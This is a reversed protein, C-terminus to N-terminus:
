EYVAFIFIHDWCRYESLDVTEGVDGLYILDTTLEETYDKYEFYSESVNAIAWGKITGDVCGTATPLEIISQNSSYLSKTEVCNSMSSIQNTVESTTPLSYFYAYTSNSFQSATTIECKGVADGGLNIYYVIQGNIYSASLRASFSTDLSSSVYHAISSNVTANPGKLSTNIISCKYYDRLTPTTSSGPISARATTWGFKLTAYDIKWGKVMTIVTQNNSITITGIVDNNYKLDSTYAIAEYVASFTINSIISHSSVDVIEVGNNSWGVFNYGTKIPYLPNTAYNGDSVKQTDYIENDVYFNVTYTYTLDAVFITDETIPYSSLDIFEDNVKWGNFIQYETSEIEVNQVCSGIRVQQTSIIENDVKFLVNYVKTFMAYYTINNEVLLNDINEVIDVQNLSWGDFVYGDKIPIAPISAMNNEVVKQTDYIENDVIFNVDYSYTLNAVFTTNCSLTYNTLDVIVGNVAWGNFITNENFTPENELYALGNKNVKQINIVENEVIFIAFVESETELGNIYNEYYIISSQLQSILENNEAILLENQSIEYLLLKNEKQLEEIDIELESIYFENTSKNEELILIKNKLDNISIENENILKEKNLNEIKLSNNESLLENNKNTLELNQLTLESMKNYLAQDSNDKISQQYADDCMKEVQTESYYPETRFIYKSNFAILSILGGFFAILVIFGIFQRKM